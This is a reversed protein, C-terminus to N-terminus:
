SKERFELTVAPDLWEALDGRAAREVAARDKGGGAFGDVQESSAVWLTGNWTMDVVVTRAPRILAVPEGATDEAIDDDRVASADAQTLEDTLGHVYEAALLGEVWERTVQSHRSGDAEAFQFADTLAIRVELCPEWGRERARALWSRIASEATTPTMPV